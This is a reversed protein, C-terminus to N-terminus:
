DHPIGSGTLEHTVLFLGSATAVVSGPETRCEGALVLRKGRRERLEGTLRYREGAPAPSSYRMELKATVVMVNELLMATWGLMEDLATALIGGHLIDEFGHYDARPSFQATVAADTVAFGGIHLGIPNRTGCGFCTEYDAKIAAVRQELDTM